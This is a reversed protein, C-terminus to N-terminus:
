TTNVLAHLEQHVVLERFAKAPEQIRTSMFGAMDEVQVDVFCGVEFDPIVGSVATPDHDALVLVKQMKGISLAVRSFEKPHSDAVAPLLRQQLSELPLQWIEDPGKVFSKSHHLDTLPNAGLTSITVM